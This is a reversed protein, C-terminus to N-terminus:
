SFNAQDVPALEFPAADATPIGNNWGYWAVMMSRGAYARNRLIDRDMPRVLLRIGIEAWTAAILELTDAVERREGATEVIVEM